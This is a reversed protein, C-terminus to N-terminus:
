PHNGVENSGSIMPKNPSSTTNNEEHAEDVIIYNIDALVSDSMCLQLLVHDTMYNVKVLSCERPTYTTFCNVYHIGGYCRKCEGVVRQQLSMAAVKRPQTCVLSCKISFGSNALYQVLQTSKGSGTEGILVMVKM